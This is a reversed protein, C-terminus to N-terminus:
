SPLWEVKSGKIWYHSRCPFQQNGISPHLTVANGDVSLTWWNGHNFPTVTQYGCGCACLHIALEFRRSIYIVGERLDSPMFEVYEPVLTEHRM